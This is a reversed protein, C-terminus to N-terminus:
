PQLKSLGHARPNCEQATAPAGLLGRCAHHQGIFKRNDHQLAAVHADLQIAVARNACRCVCGNTMVLRVHDPTTIWSSEWTAGSRPIVNRLNMRV